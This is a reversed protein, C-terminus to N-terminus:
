FKDPITSDGAKELYACYAEQKLIEFDSDYMYALVRYSIKEAEQILLNLANESWSRICLLKSLRYCWKDEWTYGFVEVIDQLGASTISKQLD